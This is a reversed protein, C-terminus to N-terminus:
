CRRLVGARSIRLACAAAALATAAAGLMDLPYHVGLFIRAWATGLGLAAVTLAAPGRRHSFLLAFALSFMFTAHFSPFSSTAEHAMLTQGLGIVFPRPHYLCARMVSAASMAIGTTLCLLVMAHKADNRNKLLSLVAILPAVVLPWEALIRAAWALYASPQGAANVLLFLQQNFTEM